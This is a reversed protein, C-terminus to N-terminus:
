PQSVARLGQLYDAVARLREDDLGQVAGQMAGNLDGGRRGDRFAVLQRYLYEAWQGALRPVGAPDNGWGEPGHCGSCAPAGTAADGGRYLAQGAELRAEDGEAHREAPKQAAYYAALDAIDQDGLTAAMGYMLAADAERRPGQAGQRFFELQRVLYRQPQGALSPWQPNPSNGDLGHCAACAAAKAKGAAADGPMMGAGQAIAALPLGLLVLLCSRAFRDLM